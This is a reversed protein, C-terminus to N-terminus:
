QNLVKQFGYITNSLNTGEFVQGPFPLWQRKPFHDKQFDRHHASASPEQVEPQFFQEEPLHACTQSPPREYQFLAHRHFFSEPFHSASQIDAHM